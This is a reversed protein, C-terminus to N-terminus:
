RTRRRVGGAQGGRGIRRLVRGCRRAYARQLLRTVPGGARAYWAAPRSFARVTFWVGGDDAMEVLFAEEGCEPHGTLTGYAFGARREEDVTWVVRCPAEIRHRGAGLGVVVGVGPAARDAEADVTVGVARHMRWELVAAGAARQVAPGEGIRVRVLLPRFGAPCRGDGTRTAGTWAYTFDPTRGDADPM